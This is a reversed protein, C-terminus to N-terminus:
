KKLQDIKNLTEPVKDFDNTKDLFFHAGLRMCKDRYQQQSHNTLMIVILQPYERRIIKLLDLGNMGSTEEELHIDLIVVDPNKERILEHAMSVNRAVGVLEHKTDDDLLIRLRSTVYANDEACVIKLGPTM